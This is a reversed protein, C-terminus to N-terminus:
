CIIMKCHVKLGQSQSLKSKKLGLGFVSFTQKVKCLWNRLFTIEELIEKMANEKKTCEKGKICKVLLEIMSPM